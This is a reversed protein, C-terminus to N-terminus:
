STSTCLELLEEINQLVISKAGQDVQSVFKPVNPVLLERGDSLNIVLVAQMPNLLAYALSGIVEDRYRIDYGYLSTLDEDGDEEALEDEPLAVIVNAHRKVEEAIGDEKFRLYTRQGVTKSEVVTVYFVRNSSFILFCEQLRTLISKYPQSFQVHYFGDPELRGLRGIGVLDSIEM